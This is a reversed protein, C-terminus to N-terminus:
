ARLTARPGPERMAEVPEPRADDVIYIPRQKVEAFIRLLYAGLLAMGAFQLSSLALVLVFVWAWGAPGQESILLQVGLTLGGGLALFGVALALWGLCRIPFSSFGIVGNWALGLLKGLTYKSEGARRAEREYVVGTQRFGVFARLGRIFRQREPLANVAQVVRRDMLCFDGADLPFELDAIQQLVRYYAWYALRKLPHEKRKTRVAYVVDYGERWREVLQPIVEPPDQLDGDLVVVAEGRARNLGATLASQHGFNRSLRVVVVQPDLEALRELLQATADRSGDDVFILESELGLASCVTSLRTYLENLCASENFLPIVASLQVEGRNANPSRPLALDFPSRVM